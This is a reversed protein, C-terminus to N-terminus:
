RALIYFYIFLESLYNVKFMILSALITVSTFM